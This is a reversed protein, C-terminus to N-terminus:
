INRCPNYQAQRKYVDQMKKTALSPFGPTGLRWFYRGDVKAAKTLLPEGFTNKYKERIDRILLLAKIISGTKSFFISYLQKLVNYKLKLMEWKGRVITSVQEPFETMELKSFSVDM